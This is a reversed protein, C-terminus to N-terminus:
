REGWAVLRGCGRQGPDQPLERLLGLELGLQAGLDARRARAHRLAAVPVEGDRVQVPHRVHERRHLLHQPQVRDHVLEPADRAAVLHERERARERGRVARDHALDRDRAPRLDHEVDPRVVPPHQAREPEAHSVRRSSLIGSIQPGSACSNLGRRNMACSFIPFVYTPTVDFRMVNLAPTCAHRPQRNEHTAM